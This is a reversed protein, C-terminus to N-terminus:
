QPNVLDALLAAIRARATTLREQLEDFVFRHGARAAQLVPVEAQQYALELEARRPEDRVREILHEAADLSERLEAVGELLQRANAARGPRPAIGDEGHCTQCQRELGRPSLLRAGVSGHCTSCTPVRRDGQGLLAYHESQQFNTYVGAHCTGCTEPLRSRHTPSSPNLSGLIGRHALTSEFTSADGGHCNECGVDERRHPSLSWDHVHAPAPERHANAFHCDACRSRDLQADAEPAGLTGLGILVLGPVLWRSLSSDHSM